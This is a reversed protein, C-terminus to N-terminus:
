AAGRDQEGGNRLGRLRGVAGARNPAGMRRLLNGIHKDVTSREIRLGAAIEKNTAGEAILALIQQQRTTLRLHGPTDDRTERNQARLWRGLVSRRFIPEGSLAAWISRRVTEVSANIANLNHNTAGAVRTKAPAFIGM